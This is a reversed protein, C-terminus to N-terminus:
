KNAERLLRTQGLRLRRRRRGITTACARTVRIGRADPAADPYVGHERLGRRAKATVNARMLRIGRADAAADPYVSHERLGRRAKAIVNARM